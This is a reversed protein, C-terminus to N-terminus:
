KDGAAAWVTSLRAAELGSGKIFVSHAYQLSSESTRRTRVIVEERKVPVRYEADFEV